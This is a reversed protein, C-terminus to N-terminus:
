TTVNFSGEVCFIRRGDKTTAEARVEWLGEPVEQPSLPMAPSKM